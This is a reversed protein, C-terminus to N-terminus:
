VFNQLWKSISNSSSTRLFKLFLSRGRPSYLERCRFSLTQPLLMTIIRNCQYGRMRELARTELPLINIESGDRPMPNMWNISSYCTAKFFPTTLGLFIADPCCVCGSPINQERFLQHLPHKWVSLSYSHRWGWFDAPILRSSPPAHTCLSKLYPKLWLCKLLEAHQEDVTLTDKSPHIFAM